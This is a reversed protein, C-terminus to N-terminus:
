NNDYSSGDNELVKDLRSIVSNINNMINQSSSKLLNLQKEREDLEKKYLKQSQEIQQSKDNLVGNLKDLAQHLSELASNTLPLESNKETM